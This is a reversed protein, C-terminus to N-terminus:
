KLEKLMEILQEELLEATGNEYRMRGAEYCDPHRFKNPLYSQYGCAYGNAITMAFPSAAKVHEGVSSYPEFPLTTIACDGIRIANLEIEGTAPRKSKEIIDGCTYISGLGFKACYAHTEPSHGKELYPKIAEMAKPALEDKSHDYKATYIRQRFGLTETESPTLGELMTKYVYGAVAAGYARYNRKKPKLGVINKELISKKLVIGPYTIGWIGEEEIQTGGVLNGCCGQLFACKTGPFYAEVCDIMAASWDASIEPRVTGGNMTSHAAFNVLLINDAAERELLLLLLSHDAEEVHEVAVYGEGRLYGDRVERVGDLLDEKTYNDKKSEEVAYYHRDFNLWAGPRGAVGSGYSLKAPKRDALARVAADVLYEVMEVERYQVANPLPSRLDPGAHTHNAGFFIRDERLGTAENIAKRCRAVSDEYIGLLDLCVYLCTEEGDSLAIARAYLPDLVSGSLRYETAGYGGLPVSARKPTIEVQAFGAQLKSNM